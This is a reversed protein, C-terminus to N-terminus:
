RQEPIGLLETVTVFQYGENKLEPILEDLGKVTGSLDQRWDGASHLLIIAGPHLTKRINNKIQEASLQNWDLSDVSWGIISYNLNGLVEVLDERLFGYPARFLRPRFGYVTQFARDTEELEWIMREAPEKSLNPHWYTHNGVVHGEEKIRRAIDQNGMVRSGMLFFTGKVQHKKLVDLVEPTYRRDPGDDFTLAIKKEQLSGHLVVISPYKEQLVINSVATTRASRVQSESGDELYAASEQHYKVPEKVEETASYGCAAFLPAFLLYLWAFKLHYSKLGM